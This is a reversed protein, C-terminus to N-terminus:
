GADAEPPAEGGLLRGAQEAEDVAKELALRRSLARVELFEVRVSAELGDVVAADTLELLALAEEAEAFKGAANATRARRALALVKRERLGPLQRRRCAELGHM